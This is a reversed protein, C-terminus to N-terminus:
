RIVLTGWGDYSARCSAALSEFRLTWTTIEDVDLLSPQLISLRSPEPRRPEFGASELEGAVADLAAADGVFNHDLPHERKSDTGATLLQIVVHNNEIWKRHIPKPRLKEDFFTWGDKEVLEVNKGKRWREFAAAFGKTDEVQFVIDRMAGYIMHGVKLCDVGARQLEDTFAREDATSRRYEDGDPLGNAYVKDPSLHLVARRCAHYGHHETEADARVNFTISARLGDGYSYAYFDWPGETVSVTKKSFWGMGFFVAAQV